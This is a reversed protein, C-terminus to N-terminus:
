IIYGNELLNEVETKEQNKLNLYHENVTTYIKNFVDFHFELNEDTRRGKKLCFVKINSGFKFDRNIDITETIIMTLALPYSDRITNFTNKIGTAMTKDLYTKVEAGCILFKEQEQEIYMAVDQDKTESINEMKFKSTFPNYQPIFQEKSKLKVSGIKLNNATKTIDYLFIIIFEELITPEYKSTSDFYLASNKFSKNLLKTEAKYDTFFRVFLARKEVSDSTNWNEKIKNIYNLYPEIFMSVDKKKEFCPAKEDVTNKLKALLNNRHPLEDIFSIKLLVERYKKCLNKM